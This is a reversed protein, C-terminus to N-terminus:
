TWGGLRHAVTAQDGLDRYSLTEGGVISVFPQDGLALAQEEVVAPLVWRRVDRLGSYM